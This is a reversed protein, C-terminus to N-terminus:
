ACFPPARLCLVGDVSRCLKGNVVGAKFDDARVGFSEFSFHPVVDATLCFSSVSHILQFGNHTHSHLPQSGNGQKFPHSHVITVGNVIHMHTYFSIAATYSTFIVLLMVKVFPRGLLKM